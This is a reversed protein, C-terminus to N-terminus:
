KKVPIWSEGERLLPVRGDAVARGAAVAVVGAQPPPPVGEPHHAHAAGAAGALHVRALPAAVVPDAVAVRAARGDVPLPEDDADGRAPRAPQSSGM